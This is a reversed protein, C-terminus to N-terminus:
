HFPRQSRYWNEIRLHEMHPTEDCDLLWLMPVDDDEFLCSRLGELDVEISELIQVIPATLEDEDICPQEDIRAEAAMTIAFALIARAALEEAACDLRSDPHACLKTAALAVTAQFRRLMAASYADLYCPPLVDALLDESDSSLRGDRELEAIMLELGEDLSSVAQTLMLRSSGAIAVTGTFREAEDAELAFFAAYSITPEQSTPSHQM